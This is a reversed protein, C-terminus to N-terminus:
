EDGDEEYEDWRQVKENAVQKILEALALYQERNDGQGGYNSPRYHKWMAGM